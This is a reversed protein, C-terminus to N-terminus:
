PSIENPFGSFIFFLRTTKGSDKAGFLPNKIGAARDKSSGIELGKSIQKLEKNLTTSNKKAALHHCCGACTDTDALHHCLGLRQNGQIYHWIPGGLVGLCKCV